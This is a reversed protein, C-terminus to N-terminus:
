PPIWNGHESLVAAHGFTKKRASEGYQSTWEDSYILYLPIAQPRRRCYRSIQDPSRFDFGISLLDAIPSGFYLIECEVRPALALFFPDAFSFSTAISRRCAIPDGSDDLDLGCQRM